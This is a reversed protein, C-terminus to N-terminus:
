IMGVIDTATTSTLVQKVRINLVTGAPVSVFTVESDELTLVVLNGAGGIYLSKPFVDIDTNAPTISFADTPPTVQSNYFKSYRDVM